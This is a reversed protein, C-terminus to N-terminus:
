GTHFCILCLCMSGRLSSTGRRPTAVYHRFLTFIKSRKESVM